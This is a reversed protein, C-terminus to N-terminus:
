YEKIMESLQEIEKLSMDTIKRKLLNKKRIVIDNKLSLVLSVIMFPLLILVPFAIIISATKLMDLGGVYILSIALLSQSVGWIFKKYGPPNLDGDSSMMGLVYTASDASTIFFSALLIIAIGSMLSGLKYHSFVVFLATETNSIAVKAVDLGLSIGLTGFASFWIFSVMSPVIVVGFIFERITRGKSIRAIFTGVFPTWAIWNSWYFITWSSMWTKDGFSNTKLSLKLFNNLYAGLNESLVNFISVTPGLIIVTLLLLVAILINLNSLTKIGKDLSGLASYIFIITVVIIILIESLLNKPVGFLYNLGGNIQLAGMGLTTAVGTITALIAVIDIGMKIQTEYKNNKLLPSFVSSMLGKENKRFQFYAMALAFFSYIAWPHIGWHFFSTRFAFDIAEKSGSILGNTPKVYHTLPEAVGFFVLGVGMGASFIMSFWSLTSYEPKSDDAGLKIDGYKSCCLFLCFLTVILIIVLYLFGFNIIIFNLMGSTVKEFRSTDIVIISLIAFIILFSIYFIKNEKYNTMKLIKTRRDIRIEEVKEEVKKEKSVRM